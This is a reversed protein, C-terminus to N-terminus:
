GLAVSGSARGVRAMLRFQAFGITALAFLLVYPVPSGRFNFADRWDDLLDVGPGPTDGGRMGSGGPITAIRTESADMGPGYGGSLEAVGLGQSHYGSMKAWEGVGLDPYDPEAMLENNDILGVAM